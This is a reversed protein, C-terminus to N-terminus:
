YPATQLPVRPNKSESIWSQGRSLPLDQESSFISPFRTHQSRTGSTCSELTTGSSIRRPYSGAFATNLQPLSPPVTQFYISTMEPESCTAKELEQSRKQRQLLQRKRADRSAKWNLLFRKTTESIEKGDLMVLTKSMVFVRDRYKKKECVPNGTLDLKILSPWNNLSKMLGKTSTINNDQANLQIISSLSHLDDLNDINNGSINMVNLCSGIARISRPDFLLKEGDPLQQNEIHFERLDELQELGEVVTICNQGLYLKSLRKMNSLGEIKTINNKQLYLHTLNAAFGLNEIKCINNDYLYLVSLNRCMSLNNIEDVFREALFVHTLRKLYQLTTESKKKKTQSPCKKILEPSIKVMKKM